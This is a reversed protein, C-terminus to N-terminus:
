EETRNRYILVSYMSLHLGRASTFPYAPVSTESESQRLPDGIIQYFVRCLFLTHIIYNIRLVMYYNDPCIFVDKSKFYYNAINM